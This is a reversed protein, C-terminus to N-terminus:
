RRFIYFFFGAYLLLFTIGELRSFSKKSLACLYVVISALILIMTDYIAFVDVVIPSIVASMGLILLVNFINSGVVNGLALDNEGKSAAVMSTVLEPLSTGIAVITLGIFTQSLGFAEAISTASDVVLDGGFIIAAIGVIIYLISKVPSLVEYDEGQGQIQVGATKRRSNLADMVATIVFVLFLILLLIGGTRGLVYSDQGKWIDAFGTKVMAVLLVFTIIISFPFEKKMVSGKVQVPHVLASAGLVMLLNFMNSGIVNSVALANKGQLAANISVSAEPMSTGFAVITLGIIISPVRLLKAVSSSGDVFLDAGKILLFFGAVLFLYMFM